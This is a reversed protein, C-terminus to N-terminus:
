FNKLTNLAVLVILVSLARLISLVDFSAMKDEEAELYKKGVKKGLPV